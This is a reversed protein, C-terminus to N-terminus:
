EKETRSSHARTNNEVLYGIIRGLMMMDNATDAAKKSPVPEQTIKCSWTKKERCFKVLVNDINLKEITMECSHLADLCKTLKAVIVLSDIHSIRGESEMIKRLSQYGRKAPPKNLHRRVNLLSQGLEQYIGIRQSEQLDPNISQKGLIASLTYLVPNLASNIPLIFVATWAYVDGSIVHGTLAMLGMVGIPFWCLFDTTVVLLLNRAVKLDKKRASQQKTVKSSSKRVELLISWQGFAILLFTVFNLGIFVTVSYIWGPPRDRTLPLAICVGSRSYFKDEFYDKYVVPLIAIILSFVWVSIALLTANKSSLRIQGFPYKIVLIRDITILCLYFVSAESSMTSLVGAIKCWISHRWYEDVFIYRKRYVADAVAIMILYVGMLFDAIALNTVFVGFGLKLRERDYFLRYVVSLINGILASLGILWLMTQLASLRMLDECSSFEDKSPFCDEEQLYTPRVCCFKYAPTILTELNRVGTFTDKNFKTIDNNKFNLRVVSLKSFAFNEIEELANNSIDLSELNLETFTYASITRLDSGAFNLVRIHALGNFANPEIKSLKFNGHIFLSTLYKLTNFTKTYLVQIVNFSLDLSQLNTMRIFSLTSVTDIDCRSLNLRVLFPLMLNHHHLVENLDKNVSLDLTRTNRPMTRAQAMSISRNRCNVDYGSCSCNSPCTFDCLQEDDEHSCQAQGDCVHTLPICVRSSLCRYGGVCNITSGGKCLEPFFEAGIFTLVKWRPVVVDTVVKFENRGLSTSNSVEKLRYVNLDPRQENTLNTFLSDAVKRDEKMGELFILGKIKSESYRLTQVLSPAFIKLECDELRNTVGIPPSVQDKIQLHVYHLGWFHWPNRINFKLIRVTSGPSHFQRAFGDVIRANVAYFRDNVLVVIEREADLCGCGKEDQGDPCHPQGDCVFQKPICYSGPCKMMDPSCHHNECNQLHSNSRCGIINGTADFNYVCRTHKQFLKAENECAIEEVGKHSTTCHIPGPIIEINSSYSQLLEIRKNVNTSQEDYKFKLETKEMSTGKYVTSDCTETFQCTNGYKKCNEDFRVMLTTCFCTERGTFANHYQWVAAYVPSCKQESTQMCEHKDFEWKIMAGLNYDWIEHKKRTYIFGSSHKWFIDINQVITYIEGKSIVSDFDCWVQIDRIIYSGTQRYGAVWWEKCSQFTQTGCYIEDTGDFCDKFTDCVLRNPVCRMADCHFAKNQKCSGCNGEDSGDVCHVLGDCRKTEHICQGNDCIYDNQNCFDFDCYEDSFDVCDSIFNCVQSVHICDGDGCQFEDPKCNSSDIETRLCHLEDSADLCDKVGDCVAIISIWELTECLFYSSKEFGVPLADPMNGHSITQNASSMNKLCDTEDSLDLCDFKNDCKNIHKIAEGNGCRFTRNDHKPVTASANYIDDDVLCPEWEDEMDGYYCWTYGDNYPDRCYNQEHSLPGSQYGRKVMHKSFNKWSLCTKGSFTTNKTGSYKNLISSCRGSPNDVICPEWMTNIDTTYCWLYGNNWPDRCYNAANSITEGPFDGNQTTQYHPVKSDWRQCTKGTFTKDQTGTYKVYPFIPLASPPLEVSCKNWGMQAYCWLYGDNMPDRCYNLAAAKSGDSFQTDEDITIDTWPLCPAGAETVSAKGIYERPLIHDFIETWDSSLEASQISYEATECLLYKRKENEALHEECVYSDALVTVCDESEWTEDPQFLQYNMRCCNGTSPEGKKWANFIVPSGDEWVYRLMNNTMIIRSIGIHSYFSANFPLSEAQPIQLNYGLITERLLYKIFRLEEISSITVLHLNRNWCEMGAHNWNTLESFVHYCKKFKNSCVPCSSTGMCKEIEFNNGCCGNEPTKCIRIRKRTGPGCYASCNGWASWVGYRANAKQLNKATCQSSGGFDDFAKLYDPFM